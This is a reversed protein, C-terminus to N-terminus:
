KGCRGNVTMKTGVITLRYWALSSIGAMAVVALTAVRARRDGDVVEVRLVMADLRSAVAGRWLKWCCARRPNAVDM